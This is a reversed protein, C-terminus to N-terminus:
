FSFFLSSFFFLGFMRKLFKKSVFLNAFNQYYVNKSQM